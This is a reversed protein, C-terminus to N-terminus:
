RYGFQLPPTVSRPLRDSRGEGADDLWRGADRSIARGLALGGVVAVMGIAVSAGLNLAALLWAGDEIMRWSELALTSFTTYAGLFGIMLPGRLEAPLAARDGILAFVLGVMFSGSVNVVFTGWPFAAFRQSVESDVLYRAIAGAFGGVGILVVGGM